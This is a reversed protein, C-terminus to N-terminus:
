MYEGCTGIADRADDIIESIEYAWDLAASLYEAAEFRHLRLEKIETELREAQSSMRLTCALRTNKKNRDLNNEIIEVESNVSAITEKLINAVKRIKFLCALIEQTCIPTFFDNFAEMYLPELCKKWSTISEVTEESIGTLESIKRVSFDQSTCDTMGLLWDSSVGCKEAIEKIGLADPIRDGNCYFGVTQRSMGLFAAFETNSRNGQLERFRDRFKPFRCGNVSSQKM